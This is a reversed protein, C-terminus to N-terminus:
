RIDRIMRGKLSSTHLMWGHRTGILVVQRRSAKKKNIKKQKTVTTIPKKHLAKKQEQKKNMHINRYTQKHTKTQDCLTLFLVVM